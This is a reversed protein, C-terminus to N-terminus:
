VTCHLTLQLLAERGRFGILANVCCMDAFHETGAKRLQINAM